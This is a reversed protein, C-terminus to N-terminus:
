YDKVCRISRGFYVQDIDSWTRGGQTNSITMWRAAWKDRTTTWFSAFINKGTSSGPEVILGGPLASFGSQNTVDYNPSFWYGGNDLTEVTRLNADLGAVEPTGLLLGVESISPVHWGTPCVNRADEAAAFTYLKGFISDNSARYDYNAYTSQWSNAVWVDRSTAHILTDGNAFRTTQLNEAMWTLSGIRVTKYINGDIDTVQGQLAPVAFSLVGGYTTDVANVAFARIYYTTAPTLNDLTSQFVGIGSGAATTIYGATGLLPNNSSGWVFGRQLVPKGGDTLVEGAALFSTSSLRGAPRTVVYPSAPHNLQSAGPILVFGGQPLFLTDGSASVRVSWGANQNWRATDQSTIGLGTASSFTPNWDPQEPTGFNVEIQNTTSNFIQLGKAPLVIANRQAINMRPLLFGATTSAIEFAASPNLQLPNDGTKIQSHAAGAFLLSLATCLALTQNKM